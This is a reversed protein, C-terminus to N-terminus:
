KSDNYNKTGERAAKNQTPDTFSYDGAKLVFPYNEFIQEFNEKFEEDYNELADKVIQTYKLPIFSNKDDKKALKDEKTTMFAILDDDINKTLISEKKIIICSYNKERLKLVELEEETIKIVVGYLISNENKQINLFVGNVIGDEFKISEIANWVREYGKIKVSILDNQTLVRKFSKQASSLNILSGFGFLYM